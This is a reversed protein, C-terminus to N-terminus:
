ATEDHRGGHQKVIERAVVRLKVSAQNPPTFQIVDPQLYTGIQRLASTQDPTVAHRAGRLTVDTGIPSMVASM